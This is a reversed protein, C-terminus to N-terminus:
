RSAWSTTSSPRTASIRRSRSSTRVKGFTALSTDYFGCLQNGGGGPLGPNLPATVCFPNYDSPTTLQNQQTSINGYSNRYYGGSVTITPTLQHQLEVSSDWIYDRNGFGHIVDPAYRVANPNALGFDVNSIAGCDGNAAPNTLDCNPVYNGDLAPSTALTTDNWTRTVSAPPARCRPGSAGWPSALALWGTSAGWGVFRGARCRSVSVRPPAPPPPSGGPPTFRSSGLRPVTLRQPGAIRLCRLDGITEFDPPTGGGSIRPATLFSLTM